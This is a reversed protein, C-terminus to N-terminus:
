VIGSIALVSFSNRQIYRNLTSASALKGEFVAFDGRQFPFAQFSELLFEGVWGSLVGVDGMAGGIEGYDEVGQGANVSLNFM